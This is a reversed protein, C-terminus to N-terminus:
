WLVPNSVRVHFPIGPIPCPWTELHFFLPWHPIQGLHAPLVRRSPRETGAGWEAGSSRARAPLGRPSAQSQSEQCLKLEPVPVKKPPFPLAGRQTPLHTPTGPLVPQRGAPTPSPEAHHSRARQGRCAGTGALRAPGATRSRTFCAPGCLLAPHPQRQWLRHVRRRAKSARRGRGESQSM